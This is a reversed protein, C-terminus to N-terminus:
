DKPKDLSEGTLTHVRHPAKDPDYGYSEALKRARVRLAPSVESWSFRRPPKFASSKRAVNKAPTMPVEEVLGAAKAFAPWDERMHELRLLHDTHKEILRNWGYWFAVVRDPNEMGPKVGPCNAEVYRWSQKTFYPFTWVSACCSLPHRVLHARVSFTWDQPHLGDGHHHPDDDRYGPRVDSHPAGFWWSVCAEKGVAEHAVEVGAARLLGTTYYSGSRPMSAVLIRRAVPKEPRTM